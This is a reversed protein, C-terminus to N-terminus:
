PAALPLPAAAADPLLPEVPPLPSAIPLVDMVCPAELPLALPLPLAATDRPLPDTFPAAAPL